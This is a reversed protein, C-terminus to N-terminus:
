NLNVVLLDRLDQPKRGALKEVDGTVVDFAGAAFDQQINVIRYEYNFRGSRETLAYRYSPESFGACSRVHDFTM